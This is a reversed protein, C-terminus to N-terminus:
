PSATERELDAPHRITMTLKKGYRRLWGRATIAANELSHIDEFHFLDERPIRVAVPGDLNLWISKRSEGVRVVRGSVLRFGADEAPRLRSAPIPQYRALAWVGLGAQRALQEAHAYCAVHGLNPPVRLATALGERLLLANLSELGPLYPHALLRGYRDKREAGWSLALRGGTEALLREVRQKAADALPESPQGDHGVEPTNVGIFRIKRGDALRVTDGDYIYDVRVEADIRDPPCDIASWAGAAWLLLFSFPAGKRLAGRGLWARPM